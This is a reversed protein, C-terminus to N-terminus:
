IGGSGFQILWNRAFGIRKVSAAPINAPIEYHNLILDTAEEITKTESLAEIIPRNQGYKQFYEQRVSATGRFTTGAIERWVYDLQLGLDGEPMDQEAAIDRLGQKRSEATWQVIGYGPRCSAGLCDPVTDSL